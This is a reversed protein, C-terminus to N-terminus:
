PKGGYRLNWDEIKAQKVMIRRADNYRVRHLRDRLGVVFPEDSNWFNCSVGRPAFCGKRRCAISLAIMRLRSQM